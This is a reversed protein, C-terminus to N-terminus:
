VLKLFKDIEVVFMAALLGSENMEVEHFNM